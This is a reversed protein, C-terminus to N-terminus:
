SISRMVTRGHAVVPSFFLFSRLFFSGSRMPILLPALTHGASDGNSNRNVPSGNVLIISFSSLSLPTVIPMLVLNSLEGVVGCCHLFSVM